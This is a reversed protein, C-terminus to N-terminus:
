KFIKHAIKKDQVKIDDKEPFLTEGIASVPYQKVEELSGDDMEIIINNRGSWETKCGKRDNIILYLYDGDKRIVEMEGYAWNYYTRGVDAASREETWDRDTIEDPIDAEALGAAAKADVGQKHLKRKRDTIKKDVKAIGEELASKSRKIEKWNLKMWKNEEIVEGIENGLEKMREKNESSRSSKLHQYNDLNVKLGLLIRNEKEWKDIMKLTKEDM